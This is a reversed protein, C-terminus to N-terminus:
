RSRLSHHQPVRLNRAPRSGVFGEIWALAHDAAPQRRVPRSHLECKARRHLTSAPSPDIGTRVVELFHDFTDGGIPLGSSDPTLNRSVIHASNPILAGFDRGGGLHTAANVQKPQNIYPNGGKAYQTPPGASHCGNCDGAVNVFYSGLGVLARNKHAMNLPVPAALLGIEIRSDGGSQANAVQIPSTFTAIMVAAAVASVAAVKIGLDRKM